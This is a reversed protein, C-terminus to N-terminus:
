MALKLFLEEQEAFTRQPSVYPRGITLYDFGMGALKEPDFLNRGDFLLPTKLSSKVKTWEPNRFENWETAIVLADRNWLVEYMDKGWKIDVKLSRLANEMGEPDYASVEAGRNVLEEILWLAPAERVDDTNPKFSLGWFAIKKNSVDGLKDIIAQLMFERQSQNVEMVAKLIKFDYNLESSTKALAQVDKPFCSGGYGLGPYLFQSGIRVDKGMGQRVFEVDAGARACLNAIENIFSIKMALFGNSAYKVIEASREDMVIIPNGNRVFPEYLARMLEAAAPNRTGVVIRDPKMFDQVASGERLFEPNSVVDFHQGAVLGRREMVDRVKDATGVPVTSKTVLVKYGKIMSAIDDTAKLVYSLDASGDEQPPTPLTLFIITSESVADALKTTFHLRGERINRAFLTELGPEYITINGARLKEVKKDDVDVCTVYNGTEALATASVLGVYGTGIFAIKM